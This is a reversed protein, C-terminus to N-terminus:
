RQDCLWFAGQRQCKASNFLSIRDKILGRLHAGRVYDFPACRIRTTFIRCALLSQTDFSAWLFLPNPTHTASASHTYFRVMSMMVNVLKIIKVVGKGSTHRSDALWLLSTGKERLKM